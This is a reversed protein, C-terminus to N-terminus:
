GRKVIAIIKDIFAEISKITLEQDDNVNWEFSVVTDKGSYPNRRNFAFDPYVATLCPKSFDTEFYTKCEPIVYRYFLGSEGHSQEQSFGAILLFNRIKTFNDSYM